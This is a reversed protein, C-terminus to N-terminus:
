NQGDDDVSREIPPPPEKVFAEWPKFQMVAVLVTVVLGWIWKQRKEKADRKAGYERNAEIVAQRRIEEIKDRDDMAKEFQKTTMLSPLAARMEAMAETIGNYLKQRIEINSKSLDKIPEHLSDVGHRIEDLENDIRVVCGELGDVRASISSVTPQKAM